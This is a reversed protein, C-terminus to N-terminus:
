MVDQDATNISAVNENDCYESQHVEASDQEVVAAACEPTFAVEEVPANKWEEEGGFHEVFQAKTYAVGDVSVRRSAPHSVEQPAATWQEEDGFHEVFQEKTYAAGDVSIRREQGM